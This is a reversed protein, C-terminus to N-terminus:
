CARVFKLLGSDSLGQSMALHVLTTEPKTNTGADLSHYSLFLARNEVM